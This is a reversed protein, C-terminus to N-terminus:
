TFAITFQSLKIEDKTYHLYQVYTIYQHFRLPLPRAGLASTTVEPRFTSWFM